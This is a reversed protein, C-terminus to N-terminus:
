KKGTHYKYMFVAAIGRYIIAMVVLVAVNTWKDTGDFDYMALIVDGAIAPQPGGAADPAPDFHRGHFENYMFASFSYSHMGIWHMWRWWWGINELKVFFGQVIMFAGYIMAGLAIGVIAVPVVASVLLMISEAVMFSVFLDLLFFLFRDWAANLGVLWYVISGCVLAQLAMFPVDVITHAIVFAPVSYSGNARERVFVAKEELFAPLVSVSMFVMFAAVFFLVGVIDVVVDAKNGIRLWVTGIMLSLAVYMFMRLWIVLPNRLANLFCRKTLVWTHHAFGVGVNQKLVNEIPDTTRNNVNPDGDDKKVAEIMHTLTATHESIEPWADLIENVVVPDTFDSNILDLLYESSSTMEPVPKQMKETFYGVAGPAAGCYAVRGGSLLLLSDALKFLTEAPQHINVVMTTHRLKCVRQMSTMVSNAATSDLGSTLEDLLLIGPAAVLENGVSLRRRQGGSLGRLIINGVPTQRQKELGLLSIADDARRKQEAESATYFSASFILTEEVTLVATLIDEQQSLPDAM